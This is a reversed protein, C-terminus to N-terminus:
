LFRLPQQNQIMPGRRGTLSDRGPGHGNRVELFAVREEDTDTGQSSLPQVVPGPGPTPALVSMSWSWPAPSPPHTGTLSLAHTKTGRCHATKQLSAQHQVVQGGCGGGDKFGDKHNLVSLPVTTKPRTWTGTGDSVARTWVTYLLRM